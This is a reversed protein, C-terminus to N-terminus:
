LYTDVNLTAPDFVFLENGDSGNNGRFYLKDNLIVIYRIGTITDDLQFTELGNTRWLHSDNDNGDAGSYYLWGDYEVYSSPNHSPSPGTQNSINTVSDEIPDYVWLQYAINEDFGKFFLKGNWTYFNQLGSGEQPTYVHVTGETTGDTKWIESDSYVTFYIENELLTMNYIESEIQNGNIDKILEFVQTAPNYAYLETGVADVDTSTNAYCYIKDNLIIIQNGQIYEEGSGVVPQSTTGDFQYLTRDGNNIHYILGNLIIPENVEGVGDVPVTGSETGDTTFLVNGSGSNATFYLTNNYVFFNNPSSSSEGINLDKFFITGDTTGDSVWLERGLNVGGPSNTGSFDRASFYIDGEFVFLNSPVSGSLCCYTDIDKVQTPQAVTILTAFFLMIFFLKTKM